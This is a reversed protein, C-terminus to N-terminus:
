ISYNDSDEFYNPPNIYNNIAEESGLYMFVCSQEDPRSTLPSSTSLTLNYEIGLISLLGVGGSSFYYPSM